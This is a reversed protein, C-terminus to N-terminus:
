GGAMLQRRGPRRAQEQLVGRRRRVSDALRQVDEQSLDSMPGQFGSTANLEQLRQSAIRMIGAGTIDTRTKQDPTSVQGGLNGVSMGAGQAMLGSIERQDFGTTKTVRRQRSRSSSSSM